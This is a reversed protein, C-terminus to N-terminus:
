TTTEVVTECQKETGQGCRGCWVNTEAATHSPTDHGRHSGPVHIHQVLHANGLGDPYRLDDAEFPREKVDRRGHYLIRDHEACTCYWVM